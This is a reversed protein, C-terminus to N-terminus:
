KKDNREAIAQMADIEDAATLLMRAVDRMEPAKMRREFQAFANEMMCGISLIGAEKTVTCRIMGLTFVKTGDRCVDFYGPMPEYEFVRKNTAVDTNVDNEPKTM